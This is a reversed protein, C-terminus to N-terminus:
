LLKLISKIIKICKLFEVLGVLQLGQVFREVVPGISKVTCLATQAFSPTWEDWSCVHTIDAVATPSVNYADIILKIVNSSNSSLTGVASKPILNKLEQLLCLVFVLKDDCLIFVM